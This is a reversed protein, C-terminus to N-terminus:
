CFNQFKIDNLDPKLDNFNIFANISKYKQETKHFLSKKSHYEIFLSPHRKYMM